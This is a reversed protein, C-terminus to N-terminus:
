SALPKSPLVFELLSGHMYMKNLMNRRAALGGILFLSGESKVVAGGVSSVLHSKSNNQSSEEQFMMPKKGSTNPNELTAYTEVLQDNSSRMCGQICRSRLDMINIVSNKVTYTQCNSDSIDNGAKESERAMKATEYIKNVDTDSFGGTFVAMHGLSTMSHGVLKMRASIPNRLDNRITGYTDMRKWSGEDLNFCWMEGFVRTNDSGGHIVITRGAICNSDVSGGMFLPNGQAFLLQQYKANSNPAINANVKTTTSADPTSQYRQTSVSDGLYKESSIVSTTSLKRSHSVTSHQISRNRINSFDLTYRTNAKLHERFNPYEIEFNEELDKLIKDQLSDHNTINFPPIDYAFFARVSPWKEANNIIPIKVAIVTDSFKLFNKKGRGVVKIDLKWMDNMAEYKDDKIQRYGGFIVITYVDVGHNSLNSTFRSSERPSMKVSGDTKVFNNRTSNTSTSLKEPKNIGVKGDDTSCGINKIGKTSVQMHGFRASFTPYKVNKYSQAAINVKAFHLSVTDLIYITNNLYASRKLYYKGNNKFNTETRIEFGGYFLIHTETLKSATACLLPPPIHGSPTLKSLRSSDISYRYLYPSGVLIPNNIIEPLLPPPLNKIPEMYYKCPDPAESDYRYCPMLGGVIFIQKNMTISCHYVLTPFKYESFFSKMVSCGSLTDYMTPIYDLGKVFLPCTKRTYIDINKIYDGILLDKCDDRIMPIWLNHKKLTDTNDFNVTLMKKYYGRYSSAFNMQLMDTYQNLFKSSPFYIDLDANIPYSPDDKHLQSEETGIESDSNRRSNESTYRSFSFSNLQSLLDKRTDFDVQPDIENGTGDSDPNVFRHNNGFKGLTPITLKRKVQFSEINNPSCSLFYDILGQHKNVEIHISNNNSNDSADVVENNNNNDETQTLPLTTSFSANKSSANSYESESVIRSQRKISSKKLDYYRSLQRDNLEKLQVDTYRDIITDLLSSTNTLYEVVDYNNKFNELNSTDYVSLTDKQSIIDSM